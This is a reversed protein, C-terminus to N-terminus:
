NCYSNLIKNLCYIFIVIEFILVWMEILKINIGKM